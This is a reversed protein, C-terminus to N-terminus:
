IQMYNQTHVNKMQWMSASSKNNNIADANKEHQKKRNTYAIGANLHFTPVIYSSRETSATLIHTYWMEIKMSSFSFLCCCITHFTPAYFLLIVSTGLSTHPHTNDFYLVFIFYYNSYQTYMHKRIHAYTRAYTIRIARYLPWKCKLNNLCDYHKHTTQIPGFRFYWGCSFM